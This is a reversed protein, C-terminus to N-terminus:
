VTPFEAIRLKAGGYPVLVLKTLPEDSSVPGLPPDSASNKSLGWHLLPKGSVEISLPAQKANYPQKTMSGPVVKAVGPQIGYEWRSAPWLEWDQLPSNGGHNVWVTKIPLAFLLAGYKVGVANQARHIFRVEAAFKIRIVSDNWPRTLTIYGNVNEEQVVEGDISIQTSKSWEPVRLGIAKKTGNGKIHIEVENKFPYDGTVEIHLNAGDVTCPAYSIATLGGQQNVLWLHQVFKPWGQHMNATCCGWHPALGFMNAEPGNSTWNRDGYTCLVQNVQQDYQHSLWDESVTAPLANYAVTELLDGFKADGMTMLLNELSFMMEVVSCLETGQSPSTGSLWEDGGIMGNLQGHFQYLETLATRLAEKYRSDNTLVYDQGLYKLSMAVNVVHSSYDWSKVYRTFPFNEFLSTWDLSQERLIHILKLLSPERTKRYLWMVVLVNEGGRAQGWEKLPRGTLNKLQYDCYRLMFPVVRDDETAEFYQIMVKLMVMRPWWDLNNKPGFNGDPQQSNLSWEVFENAHEKLQKDDLLYALPLLGDVYYPGREWDEGNGGLWGSSPGADPWKDFLLGTLGKAQIKLQDELWGSAKIAGLPLKDMAMDLSASEM